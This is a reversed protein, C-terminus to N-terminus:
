TYTYTNTYIHLYPRICGNQACVCAVVGGGLFFGYRLQALCELLSWLEAQEEDEERAEEERRSQEQAQVAHTHTDTNTTSTPSNPHHHTYTYVFIIVCVSSYRGTLIHIHCSWFL